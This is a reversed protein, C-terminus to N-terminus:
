NMDGDWGHVDLATLNGSRGLIETLCKWIERARQALFRTMRNFFCRWLVIERLKVRM